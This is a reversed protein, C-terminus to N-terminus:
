FSGGIAFFFRQAVNVKQGNVIDNPHIPWGLGFMLPMNRMVEVRIGFGISASLPGLTFENMSVYGADVFIFGDVSPITVLNHQYEESLLLSSLGGRPENNGFKPGIIFPRYGRVTTEGGLFFRESLPLNVPDTSGYTTIFQIDGRIKLTGKRSFPYYYTNLYSFKMFQYNGGMGAVEYGLRSRFGCSARRPHDTSDYILANGVASIFGTQEGEKRLTVNNKERIDINTHRARYYIDYKLFSNIIYTGHVTGGYTKIEYDRSYIRNDSKELDVGFIWPTDLFYPKTWSLLYSTQRDGINVKAHTYEGGGRLGRPGKNLLDMLGTINFNRETIEIGGFIRDLSSFGAFLGLNGTDTEEVEIYVDRYLKKSDCDEIQSRVAYVNVCSFFGTNGLRAETKEIKRNDFVEGPCLLSEHLIVKTQTSRNGFVRILGVYYQLGEEIKIFLDYVPSDNRMVMQIDIDTDIYGYSGYLDRIAQITSRIKEPSLPSKMSFAFVEYIKEHTFLSNGEINIHGVKYCIGKEVKIVLDIKKAVKAEKVSMDVIADAYGQNQLYNIIKLRDHEIMEPHYIGKGSYWSLLVNYPQSLIEELIEEEERANLGEFLIQHIKGARGESIHIEIDIKSGEENPIILYDIEAEFYGRKAYFLRLQHLAKIFEDREFLSGTEIGLNKFLKKSKIEENGCFHIKNIIPKLCINLFIYIENHIVEISPLVQDYEKALMKLDSDFESQSFYNGVKSEMRSQIAIPHFTEDNSVNRPIFEIKAIRMTEYQEAFSFFPFSFLFFAFIWHKM